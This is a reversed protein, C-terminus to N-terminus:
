ALSPAFGATTVRDSTVARSTSRGAASKRSLVMMAKSRFATVPISRSTSPWREGDGGVLGPLPPDDLRAHVPGIGVHDGVEEVLELGGLGLLEHGGASGKGLVAEVLRAADGQPDALVLVARGLGQGEALRIGRLLADVHRSTIGGPHHQRGVLHPLDHRLRHGSNAVLDDDRVGVVLGIADLHLARAAGHPELLVPRRPLDRCGLRELRVRARHAIQEPLDPVKARGSEEAVSRTVDGSVEGLGLDGHADPFFPDRLRLREQQAANESFRPPVGAATAATAPWPGTMSTSALARPSRERPAVSRRSRDM